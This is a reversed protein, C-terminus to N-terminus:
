KKGLKKPPYDGLISQRKIATQWKEYSDITRQVLNEATNPDPTICRWFWDISIQEWEGYREIWAVQESARCRFRHERWFWHGRFEVDANAYWAGEGRAWESWKGQPVKYIIELSSSEVRWFYGDPLKALGTEPDIETM